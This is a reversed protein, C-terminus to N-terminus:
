HTTPYGPIPVIKNSTPGDLALYYYNGLNGTTVTQQYLTSSTSYELPMTWDLDVEVVCGSPVTINFLNASSTATVNIWDGVLSKKPPRYALCGTVMIGGPINRAVDEDPTRSDLTSFWEVSVSEGTSASSPWIRLERIRLSSACLSITTNAVTCIGGLVGFLEIVSVTAAVSTTLFRITRSYKPNLQFPPPLSINAMTGRKGFLMKPVGAVTSIKSDLLDEPSLKVVPSLEHSSSSTVKTKTEVKLKRM